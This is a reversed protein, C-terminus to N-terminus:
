TFYSVGVVKGFWSHFIKKKKKFAEFLFFKYYINKERKEFCIFPSFFVVLYSQFMGKAWQPDYLIVLSVLYASLFNLSESLIRESTFV